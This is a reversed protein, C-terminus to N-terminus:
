RGVNIRDPNGPKKVEAKGKVPGGAAASTIVKTDKGSTEPSKNGVTPGRGYNGGAKGGHQNGSYKSSGRSFGEGGQGNFALGKDSQTKSM